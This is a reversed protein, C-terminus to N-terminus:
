KLLNKILAVKLLITPMQTYHMIQTLKLKTIKHLTISINRYNLLYNINHIIDWNPFKILTNQSYPLNQLIQITSANDIHINITTNNPIIQM